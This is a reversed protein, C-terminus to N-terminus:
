ILNSIYGYLATSLTIKDTKIIIKEDLDIQSTISNFLDPNQSKLWTAIFNEPLKTGINCRLYIYLITKFISDNGFTNKLENFNAIVEKLKKICQMNAIIFKKQCIIDLQKEIQQKQMDNIVPTERLNKEEKRLSQLDDELDDDLFNSDIELLDNDIIGANLSIEQADKRFDLPPKYQTPWPLYDKFLGRTYNEYNNKVVFFNYMTIINLNNVINNLYSTYLIKIKPDEIDCSIKSKASIYEWIEIFGEIQKDNTILIPLRGSNSDFINSNPIIEYDDNINHKSILYGLIHSPVDFPAIEVGNGWAYIKYVM